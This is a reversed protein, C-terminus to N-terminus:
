PFVVALILTQSPEQPQAALVVIGNGDDRQITLHFGNEPVRTSEAVTWGEGELFSILFAKALSPSGTYRLKMAWGTVGTDPLQGSSSDVLAFERPFKLDDPWDASYPIEETPFDM